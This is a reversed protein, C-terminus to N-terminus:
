SSDSVKVAHVDLLYAATKIFPSIVEEHKDETMLGAGGGEPAMLDASDKVQVVPGTDSQQVSGGDGASGGDAVGGGGHPSLDSQAPDGEQPTTEVQVVQEEEQM